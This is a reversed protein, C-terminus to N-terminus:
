RPAKVNVPPGKIKGTDSVRFEPLVIDLGKTPKLIVLAVRRWPSGRFTLDKSKCRISLIQLPFKWVPFTGTLLKCRRPIYVEAKHHKWVKRSNGKVKMEFSHNIGKMPKRSSTKGTYFSPPSVSSFPSKFPKFIKHKIYFSLFGYVIFHSRWISAIGTNNISVPSRLPRPFLNKVNGSTIKWRVQCM